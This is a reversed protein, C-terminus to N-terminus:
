GLNRVVIKFLDAVCIGVFVCLVGVFLSFYRGTRGRVCVPCLAIDLM